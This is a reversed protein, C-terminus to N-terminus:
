LTETERDFERRSMEFRIDEYHALLESAAGRAPDDLKSFADDSAALLEADSYRGLPRIKAAHFDAAAFDLDEFVSGSADASCQLELSVGASLPPAGSLDLQRSQGDIANLDHRLGALAASEVFPSRSLDVRIHWTFGSRRIRQILQLLAPRTERNLTGIVDIRVIDLGVDLKVHANLSQDM